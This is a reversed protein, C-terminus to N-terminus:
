SHANTKWNKRRNIDSITKQNVGFLEAIERQSMSGILVRINAVQQEALKRHQRGKNCKDTMNEHHTGSFLHWPNVCSRNDCTHLVQQPPQRGHIMAWVVRHAKRIVLKGDFRFSVKGYGDGTVPGDFAICDTKM